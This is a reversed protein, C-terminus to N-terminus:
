DPSQLLVDEDIRVLGEAVTDEVKGANIVEVGGDVWDRLIRESIAWWTQTERVKIVTTTGYQFCDHFLDLKASTGETVTGGFTIVKIAEPKQKTDGSEKQTKGCSNLITLLVIPALLLALWSKHYIILSFKNEPITILKKISM